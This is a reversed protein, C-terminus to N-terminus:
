TITMHYITLAGQCSHLARQSYERVRWVCRESDRHSGTSDPTPRDGLPTLSPPPPSHSPSLHLPPLPSLPSALPLPCSVGAIANALLTKGCGPPGHLLFGQPPRIGLRAFVEPHRLHLLLKQVEQSRLPSVVRYVLLVIQTQEHLNVISHAICVKIPVQCGGVDGFTESSQEM